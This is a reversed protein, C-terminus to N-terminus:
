STQQPATAASAMALFIEEVVREISVFQSDGYYHWESLIERGAEIMQPTVKIAENKAM